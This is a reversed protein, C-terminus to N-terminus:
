DFGFLLGPFSLNMQLFLGAGVTGLLIPDAYSIFPYNFATVNSGSYECTLFTKVGNEASELLPVTDMAQTPDGLRAYTSELPDTGDHIGFILRLIPAATFSRYPADARLLGANNTPIQFETVMPWGYAGALSHGASFLYGNASSGAATFVIPSVAFASEAPLGYIYYWAGFVQVFNTGDNYEYVVQFDTTYEGSVGFVVNMPPTYESGVLGMGVFYLIYGNFLSGPTFTVDNGSFEPSQPQVNVGPAYSFLASRLPDAIFALLGGFPLCKTEGATGVVPFISGNDIEELSDIFPLESIKADAM